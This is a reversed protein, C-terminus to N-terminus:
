RTIKEKVIYEKKLCYNEIELDLQIKEKNLEEILSELDLEELKSKENFINEKEFQEKELDELFKLLTNIKSQSKFSSDYKLNYKDLYAVIKNKITAKLDMNRKYLDYVVDTFKCQEKTLRRRYNKYPEKSVSYNRALVEDAREILEEKELSYVFMAFVKLFDGVEKKEFSLNGNLADEITKKQEEQQLFDFYKSVYESARKENGKIEGMCKELYDCFSHIDEIQEQRQKIVDESIGKQDVLHEIEERDENKKNAKDLRSICGNLSENLSNIEKEYMNVVTLINNNIIEKINELKSSIDNALISLSKNLKKDKIIENFEDKVEEFLEKAALTDGIFQDVNVFEMNLFESVNNIKEQVDELDLEIALNRYEKEEKNWKKSWLEIQEDSTELKGLIGKIQEEEIDKVNVKNLSQNYVVASREIEEGQKEYIDFHNRIKKLVNTRLEDKNSSTLVAEQLSSKVAGVPAILFSFNNGLLNEMDNSSLFMSLIDFIESIKGEKLYDNKSLQSISTFNNGNIFKNLNLKEGYVREFVDSINLCVDNIKDVGVSLSTISDNDIKALQLPTFDGKINYTKDETVALKGLSEGMLFKITKNISGSNFTAVSSSDFLVEKFQKSLLKDIEVAVSMKVSQENIYKKFEELRNYLNNIKSVSSSVFFSACRKSILVLEQDKLSFDKKLCYIIRELNESECQKIFLRSRKKCNEFLMDAKEKERMTLYLSDKLELSKKFTSDVIIGIEDNVKENVNMVDLVVKKFKKLTDLEDTSKSKINEYVVLLDVLLSADINRNIELMKNLSVSEYSSVLSQNISFLLALHQKIQNISENEGIDKFLTKKENKTINELGLDKLYSLLEEQSYKM